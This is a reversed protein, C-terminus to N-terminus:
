FLQSAALAVRATENVNLPGLVRFSSDATVAGTPVMFSDFSLNVSYACKLSCLSLVSLVGPVEHM